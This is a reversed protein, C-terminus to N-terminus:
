HTTKDKPPSNNNKPSKGDNKWNKILKKSFLLIKKGLRKLFSYNNGKLAVIDNANYLPSYIFLRTNSGSAYGGGWQSGGGGHSIMM